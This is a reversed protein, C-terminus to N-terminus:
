YKNYYIINFISKNYNVFKLVTQKAYLISLADEIKHVIL